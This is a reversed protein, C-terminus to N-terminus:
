SAPNGSQPAAQAACSVEEAVAEVGAKAANYLQELRKLEGQKAMLRGRATHEHAIMDALKGELETVMQAHAEKRQRIAEEAAIVKLEALRAMEAKHEREIDAKSKLSLHYTLAKPNIWSFSNDWIVYCTGTTHIDLQGERAQSRAAEV